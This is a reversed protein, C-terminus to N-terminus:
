VPQNESVLATLEQPWANFMAESPVDCHRRGGSVVLSQIQADDRLAQTRKDDLDRTEQRFVIGLVNDRLRQWVDGLRRHGVHVVVNALRVGLPARAALM